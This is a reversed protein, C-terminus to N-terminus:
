TIDNNVTVQHRLSALEIAIAATLAINRNQSNNEDAFAGSDAQRMALFSVTRDISKAEVVDHLNRRAALLARLCLGSV